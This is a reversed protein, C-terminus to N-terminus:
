GTQGAVPTSLWAMGCTVSGLALETAATALWVMESCCAAGRVGGDLGAREPFATGVLVRVLVSDVAAVMGNM